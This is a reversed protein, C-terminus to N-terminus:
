KFLHAPVYILGGPEGNFAGPSAHGYKTVLASGDSLFCIGDGYINPVAIRDWRYIGHPGPCRFDTVFYRDDDRQGIGYSFNFNSDIKIERESLLSIEYAMYDRHFWSEADLSSEVTTLRHGVLLASHVIGEGPLAVKGTLTWRGKPNDAPPPSLIFFTRDGNRSVWLTGNPGFNVTQARNAEGWMLMDPFLRVSQIGHNVGRIWSVRFHLGADDRSVEALCIAPEFYAAIAIKNGESAIGLPQFGLPIKMIGGLYDAPFVVEGQQNSYSKAMAKVYSEDM